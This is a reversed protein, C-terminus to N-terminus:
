WIEYQPPFPNWTTILRDVYNCVIQSAKRGEDIEMSISKDDVATSNKEALFGKLAIDTLKCLGPDSKM